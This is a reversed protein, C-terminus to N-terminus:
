YKEPRWISLGTMSGCQIVENTKYFIELKTKLLIMIKLFSCKFEAGGSRQCFFGNWIIM